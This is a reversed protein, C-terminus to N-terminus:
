IIKYIPVKYLLSNEIQLIRYNGRYVIATQNYFGYLGVYAVKYKKIRKKIIRSMTLKMSWWFIQWREHTKEVTKLDNIKVVDYNYYFFPEGEVLEVRITKLIFFDDWNVKEFYLNEDERVLEHEGNGVTCVFDDCYVCKKKNWLLKLKKSDNTVDTSTYSVLHETKAVIAIKVVRSRIYCALVSDQVRVFNYLWMDDYISTWCLRCCKYRHREWTLYRGIYIYGRGIDRHRRIM